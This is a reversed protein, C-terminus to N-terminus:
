KEGEGANECGLETSKGGASPLHSSARFPFVMSSFEQLASTNVSRCYYGLVELFGKGKSLFLEKMSHDNVNAEQLPRNNNLTESVYFRLRQSLTPLPFIYMGNLLNPRSGYTKVRCSITRVKFATTAPAAGAEGLSGM